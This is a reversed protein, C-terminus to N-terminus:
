KWNPDIGKERKRESLEREITAFTFGKEKKEKKRHMIQTAKNIRDEKDYEKQRDM